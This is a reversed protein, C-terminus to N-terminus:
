KFEAYKELIILLTNIHDTNSEFMEYHEKIRKLIIKCLIRICARLHGGTTADLIPTRGSVSITHTYQPTSHSNRHSYCPFHPM